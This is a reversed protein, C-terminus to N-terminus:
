GYVVEGFVAYQIISDAVLADLNDMDGDWYKDKIALGIGTYLSALDMFYEADDDEEDFFHLQGGNQLVKWAWEATITGDPQETNDLCAWYGIGGELATVIIDEMDEDTYYHSVRIEHEKM